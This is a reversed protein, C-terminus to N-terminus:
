HRVPNWVEFFAYAKTELFTKDQSVKWWQYMAHGNWLIATLGYSYQPWGGMARGELTMVGPIMAGDIDFFERGYKRFQPRRDIYYNIYSM